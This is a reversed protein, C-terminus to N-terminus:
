AEAEQEAEMAFEDATELDFYDLFRDTVELVKTRGDKESKLFGRKELEKVQGYARNGRIDVIESQKVPNNYAILALTRLEAENLDRHPALHEVDDVFESKVVLEYGEDSEVIKLGRSDEELEDKLEDVVQQVYGPSGLNMVDALEDTDLPDESLYLAAELVAKKEEM